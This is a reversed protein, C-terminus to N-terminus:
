QLKGRLLTVTEAILDFERFSLEVLGGHDDKIKVVDQEVSVEPCCSRGRCCPEWQDKKAITEM